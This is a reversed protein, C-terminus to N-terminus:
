VPDDWPKSLDIKQYLPMQDLFPLILTRWSHLQKGHRDVTYAPPFAGYLDHYNYLALGILKLNNKCQTRRAAEGARRPLPIFLAIVVLGVPVIWLLHLLNFNSGGKLPAPKDEPNPSAYPNETM